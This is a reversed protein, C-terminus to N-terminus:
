ITHCDIFEVSKRSIVSSLKASRQQLATDAYLAAYDRAPRKKDKDRPSKLKVDLKSYGTNLILICFYVKM